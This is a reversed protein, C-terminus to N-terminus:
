SARSVTTLPLRLRQQHEKFIYHWAKSARQAEMMEVFAAPMTRVLSPLLAMVLEPPKDEMQRLIPVMSRNLIAELAEVTVPGDKSQLHWAELCERMSARIIRHWERAESSEAMVRDGSRGAATAITPDNARAGQRDQPQDGARVQQ